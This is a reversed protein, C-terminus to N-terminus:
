KRIFDFFNLKKPQNKDQKPIKIPKKNEEFSSIKIETKAMKAGVIKLELNLKLFFMKYIEIIIKTNGINEIKKESRLAPYEIKLKWFM